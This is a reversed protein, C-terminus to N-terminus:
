KEFLGSCEKDAIRQNNIVYKKRDLKEGNEYYEILLGDCDYEYYVGILFRPEDNVNKNDTLRKLKNRDAEKDTGNVKKMELVLLNDLTLKGRSHIILDLVKNQNKITKISNRENWIMRNFEVDCYYNDLIKHKRMQTEVWFSLRACITRESLGRKILVFDNQYLEKSANILIEKVISIKEFQESANNM